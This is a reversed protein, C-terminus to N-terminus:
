IEKTIRVETKGKRRSFQIKADILNARQIINGLGLGGPKISAGSVDYGKGNDSYTITLLGKKYSLNLSAASAGAHKVTNNILECCIRYFHLETQKHFRRNQLNSEMSITFVGEHQMTNIFSNLAAELGFNELLRPMLNNAIIRMKAITEALLLNCIGLMEASKEPTKAHELLGLHLKISSLIPGLDDHLDAAFRKRDKEGTEMVRSLVYKEFHKRETIDVLITLVADQGMYKIRSNRLLFNKIVVKRNATRIEFEEEEVFSEGSLNRSIDNNRADAPDTLLESINKGIIGDKTFGTIGLILDNAFVVKGSIHILIPNPLQNVLTSYLAESERMSEEAQKHGSIDKLTYVTVSHNEVKAGAASVLYPSSIGESSTIMIESNDAVGPKAKFVRSIEPPFFSDISLGALEAAPKAVM